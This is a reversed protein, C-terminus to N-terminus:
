LTLMTPSYLPTSRLSESKMGRLSVKFLETPTHWVQRAAMAKVDLDHEGAEKESQAQRAADLKGRLQAAEMGEKSYVSYRTQGDTKPKEKSHEEKARLSEEFEVYREEVAAMFDRESNTSTFDYSRDQKAGDPLLIAHRSFYGYHPNYLSDHIYDRALIRVKRPRTSSKALTTADVLPFTYHEEAPLLTFPDVNYQSRHPNDKDPSPAVPFLSGKEQKGRRNARSSSPASAQREQREQQRSASSTSSIVRCCQGTPQLLVQRLTQRCISIHQQRLM